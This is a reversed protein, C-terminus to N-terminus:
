PHAELREHSLHESNLANPPGKSRKADVPGMDTLTGDALAPVGEVPQSYLSGMTFPDLSKQLLRAYRCTPPQVPADM